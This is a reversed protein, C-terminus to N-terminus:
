AVAVRLRDAVLRRLDDYRLPPGTYVQVVRGAADLLVTSPLLPRGIARKLQGTEDLVNPFHVGLDAALSLARAPPDEVVVGLVRLRNGAQGSLRQFAPLEERCPACWSAWLNLVTPTGALRRLAVPEGAGLCPLTLDPLAPQGAPQAAAPAGAAPCERLAAGARLAPLSDEGHGAGGPGSSTAGGCGGLGVLAGVVVLGAAGRGGRRWGARRAPERRPPASV